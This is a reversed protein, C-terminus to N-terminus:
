AALAIPAEGGAPMREEFGTLLQQSQQIMELSAEIHVVFVLLVLASSFTLSSTLGDLSYKLLMHGMGGHIKWLKKLTHGFDFNLCAWPGSRDPRRQTSGATETADVGV